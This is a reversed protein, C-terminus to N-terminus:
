DGHVETIGVVDSELVNAEFDNKKVRKHKPIGYKFKAEGWNKVQDKRKELVPILSRWDNHKVFYRWIEGDKVWGRKKVDSRVNYKYKLRERGNHDGIRISGMRQDEFRVYVSGTTAVCWIYAGIGVEGLEEILKNAIKHFSIKKDVKGGFYLM